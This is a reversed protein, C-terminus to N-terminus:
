KDLAQKVAEVIERAEDEPLGADALEQVVKDVTAGSVLRDAILDIIKEEDTKEEESINQKVAEVIEKAEDESLGADALEKVIEGEAVGSTLSESIWEIVMDIESEEEGIIERCKEICETNETKECVYLMNEAVIITSPHEKGLLRIAINLAKEYYELARDYDGKNSYALGINSYRIAINPHEETGYIKLGINLAKQYYELAKDYDGRSDYVGGINSYDTAM